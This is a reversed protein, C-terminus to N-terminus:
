EPREMAYGVRQRHKVRGRSESRITAGRPVGKFDVTVTTEGDIRAPASGLRQQQEARLAGRGRRLGGTVGEGQANSGAAALAKGAQVAIGLPSWKMIFKIIDALAQLAKMPSSVADVMWDWVSGLVSKVKDWNRWLLVGAAILAAVGIIVLGIPNSAMVLNLAAMAGYGARLAMVFNGVAGAVQAFALMGLTIAFKATALGAMGLAWTLRIVNLILGANLVVITAIMVNRWGGMFDVVGRVGAAVDKLWQKFGEGDFSKIWTVMSKLAETLNTAIWERNLAIWDAIDELLPALVPALQAGILNTVGEVAKGIHKYATDLKSLAAVQEETLVGYKNAEDMQARLAASGGALMDIMRAGEDGFLAIAMRMRLTPNENRKFGDALEPLLDASTRLQGSQDRLSIGMRAYLTALDKNKGSAADAAGQAVKQLSKDLVTQAIDAQKAAFALQQYAVVGVGVRKANRAIEDGRTAAGGMIAALGGGAAIGALSALGIAAGKVNQWLARAANGAAGLRQHLQALGAARAMQAIQVQALRARMGVGSIGRGIGRLPATARDVIGVIARLNVPSAM